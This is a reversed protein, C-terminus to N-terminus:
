KYKKCRKHKMKVSKGIDRKANYLREDLDSLMAVRERHQKARRKGDQMKALHEPTITRKKKAKAMIIVEKIYILNYYLNISKDVLKYLVM